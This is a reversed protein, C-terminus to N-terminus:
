DERMCDVFEWAALIKGWGLKKIVFDAIEWAVDEWDFNGSQLSELLEQIDNIGLTEILCDRVKDWDVNGKANIELKESIRYNHIIVAFVAVQSQMTELDADLESVDVNYAEIFYFGYELLAPPIEGESDFDTMDPFAPASDEVSYRTMICDIVELISVFNGSEYHARVHQMIKVIAQNYHLEGESKLVEILEKLYEVEIVESLCKLMIARNTTMTDMETSVRLGYVMMAFTAIQEQRLEPDDSLETIDFQNAELHHYGYQLLEEPMGNSLNANRLFPFNNEQQRLKICRIISLAEQYAENPFNINVMQLIYSAVEFDSLEGSEIDQLLEELVDRGIANRLCDLLVTIDPPNVGERGQELNYKYMLIAFATVQEQQVEPDTALQSFDLSFYEMYHFGYELLAGQIDDEPNLHQLQLHDVSAPTSDQPYTTDIPNEEQSVPSFNDKECSSVLVVTFLVAIFLITVQKM